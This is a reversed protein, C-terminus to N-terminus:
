SKGRRKKQQKNKAGSSSTGAGGKKRRPDLGHDDGNGGDAAVPPAAGRGLVRARKWLPDKAMAGDIMRGAAARDLALQSRRAGSAPTPTPTSASASSAASMAGAKRKVGQSEASQSESAVSREYQKLKVVYRQVRDLEQKIPHEKPSIGETRLFMYYAAAVSYASCIALKARDLPALRANLERQPVRLLPQIQQEIKDIAADLQATSM